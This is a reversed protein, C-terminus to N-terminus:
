WFRWDGTSLVTAMLILNTVAHALIADGLRGRRVYVHGYVLGAATGELWRSGHLLGFALSSLGIGLWGAKSPEVRELAPNGAHRMLYARFALEEVLPAFVVAGAFRFLWWLARWPAGVTQLQALSGPNPAAHWAMGIWLASVAVGAAAGYSWSKPRLAVRAYERRYWLLVAAPALVRLPYLWEFGSSAAASIMAAAQVAVFPGLYIGAPDDRLEDANRVMAREARLGPIRHSLACFGVALLTFAIWGAQSHFGGMAIKPYGYHGILILTTVRIVNLGLSAAVGAPILLLAMPFRYERRFWLLWAASFVVFLGIGEYGSCYRTIEVPFRDTGVIQGASSAQYGMLRLFWEVAWITFRSADWFSQFLRVGGLTALTIAAGSLLAQRTWLALVWEPLTAAGMSVVGGAALLFWVTALLTAIAGDHDAQALRLTVMAFAAICPVHVLLPILRAYQKRHPITARSRWGPILFSFSFVLFLFLWTVLQKLNAIGGFSEFTWVRSRRTWAAEGLLIAM